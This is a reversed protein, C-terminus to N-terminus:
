LDLKVMRQILLTGIIQGLVAGGILVHGVPSGLLPQFYHPSRLTLFLALTPPLLVLILGSLRGEATLTGIEGEARVRERIMDTIRSLIEALNGGVQQQTAVATVILVLDPSGVRGAMRALALELPLGLTMEALATTFEESVPPPMEQAVVQAARPLSYGSRLSSVLLTLTEPLQDDLRRRRSDQGARLIVPPLCVGVLGLLLAVPTLHTLGIGLTGLGLTCTAWLALFERPRLRM